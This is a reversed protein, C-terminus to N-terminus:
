FSNGNGVGGGGNGNGVGNGTNIITSNPTISNGGSAGGGGGGNPQPLIDRPGIFTGTGGLAVGGHNHAGMLGGGDISHEGQFSPGGMRAGLGNTRILAGFQTAQGDQQGEGEGEARRSGRFGISRNFNGWGTSAGRRSGGSGGGTPRAFQRNGGGSAPAFGFGRSVPAQQAGPNSQRPASHVVRAPPAVRRVSVARSVRAGGGSRGRASASAEAVALLAVAAALLTNKM